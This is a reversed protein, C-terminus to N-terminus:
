LCIAWNLILFNNKWYIDIISRLVNSVTECGNKCINLNMPNNNKKNGKSENLFM